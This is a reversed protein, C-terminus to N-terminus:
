EGKGYLNNLIELITQFSEQQEINLDTLRNNELIV